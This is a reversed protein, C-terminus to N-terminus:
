TNRQRCENTVETMTGCDPIEQYQDSMYLGRRTEPGGRFRYPAHVIRRTLPRGTFNKRPPDPSGVHRLRTGRFIASWLAQIMKNEHPKDSRM